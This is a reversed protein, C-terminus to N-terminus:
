PQYIWIKVESGKAKKQDGEPDQKEVTGAKVPDSTGTEIQVSFGADELKNTADAETDGVVDPVTVLAPGSSVTITVTSGKEASAGGEPKQKMVYGKPTDDSSQTVTKVKFGANQLKAIADAKKMDEVYPVALEEAGKSVKFDVSSGKPVETGALPNQGFVIDADYKTSYEESVAGVVLGADQVAKIAEDKTLGVLDPVEVPPPGTSIVLDVTSDHDAIAGAEPDTSIVLGNDVEESSTSDVSGVRLGGSELDAKADALTMGRVDPVKIGTEFLGMGWAIAVGVLLLLAIVGVWVWPDAGRKPAPRRAPVAPTGAVAPIVSTQDAVPIGAAVPTAAPAGGEAVRLLDKRMEDASSYRQSPDKAMAKLIVTELEPTVHPNMQTPPVPVENVHKLAISVPSDGEFPVRGCALEYLVVGLSYLDTAPTLERGQAQEPSIYQATGLVSGTQTALTDVARAIGFDMVKVTGDPMLVLNQPKIDRHIIGYGHAVSLAAAVQAGYAAVDGSPIAGSTRVLAKLDTGRVYEMVIYYTDEGEKGWDYMNVINPSTLNAAAQAEQRFRAVFEPDRAYTPNLVKVAVARGLVDDVASYVDAMGGSGIKETVRYRKGFVMEDM